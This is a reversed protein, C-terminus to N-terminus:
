PSTEVTRAADQVGDRVIIAYGQYPITRLLQPDEGISRLKRRLNSVHARVVEAGGTDPPYGWVDRLLVEPSIFEGPREMLCRLLRCETPTVTLSGGTEFLLRRTACDLALAGLRVVESESAQRPRSALLRSIERGLAAGDLPKEVLGHHGKRYFPPLGAPVMNASPPALFIVSPMEQVGDRGVWRWFGDLEEEPLISDLCVVDIHVRSMARQADNLRRATLVNHGLSQVYYEAVKLLASDPSLLLFQVTRENGISQDLVIQAPLPSAVAGIIGHRDLGNTLSTSATRDWGGPGLGPSRMGSAHAELDNGQGSGAPEM